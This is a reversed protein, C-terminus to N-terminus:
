KQVEQLRNLRERSVILISGDMVAVVVRNRDTTNVEEILINNLGGQNTSGLPTVLRYCPKSPDAVIPSRLTVGQRFAAALLDETSNVNEASFCVRVLDNVDLMRAQLLHQDRVGDLFHYILWASTICIVLIAIRLVLKM